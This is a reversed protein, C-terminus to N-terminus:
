EKVQEIAQQVHREQYPKADYGSKGSLSVAGPYKDHTFKRHSGKGGPIAYFGALQLAQVLERIKKPMTGRENEYRDVCDAIVSTYRMYAVRLLNCFSTLLSTQAVSPAQCGGLMSNSPFREM